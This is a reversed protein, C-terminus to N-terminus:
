NQIDQSFIQQDTNFQQQQPQQEMYMPQQIDQQPYMQQQPQQEM